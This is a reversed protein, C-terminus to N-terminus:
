RRDREPEVAGLRPGRGQRGGGLQVCGRRRRRAGSRRAVAPAPRTPRLGALVWLAAALIMAGLAISGSPYLAAPWGAGAIVALLAPLPRRAAVAQALVACFGFIALLLVGHMRLHEVASFPVAVDYYGGFGDYFRDLVPGFFGPREDIAPRDLAVWGAVLAAPAVLALRLWLKPALAPALALLVVWLWDLSQARTEELRLWSFAILFAPLVSVAATRAM